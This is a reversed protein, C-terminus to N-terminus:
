RSRSLRARALRPLVAPGTVPRFRDAAACLAQYEDDALDIAAAAV